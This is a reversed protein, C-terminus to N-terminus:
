RDRWVVWCGVATADMSNRTGRRQLLHGAAMGKNLNLIAAKTLAYSILKEGPDYSNV